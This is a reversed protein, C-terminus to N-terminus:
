YKSVNLELIRGEVLYVIRECINTVRDAIRELNHAVWTLHIGQEVQEPSEAMIGILKRYVRDYLTDVEDDMNCIERARAADRDKFAEISSLLMKIALQSMNPIDVYEEIPVDDSLMVAVKAIGEAHDGMRELDVTIHLVSVITRLDGALPAQTAILELCREEIEYRKDNVKVDDTIVRRALEVDRERLAQVSREVASAVMGALVLMDEQIESLQKEFLARTM